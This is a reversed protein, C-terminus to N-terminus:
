LVWINTTGAIIVELSFALANAAIKNLEFQEIGMYDNGRYNKIGYALQPTGTFSHSFTTIYEPNQDNGTLTDFILETGAQFYQSTLWAPQTSTFSM